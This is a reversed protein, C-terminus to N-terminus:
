RNEVPQLTAGGPSDTTHEELWRLPADYVVEGAEVDSLLDALQEQSPPSCPPDINDCDQDIGDNCIEPELPSITPDLPRCDIGYFSPVYGPLPQTCSDQTPTGSGAGDGDLDQLWPGEVLQNADTDDCDLDNDVFDAPQNCALAPVNQDGFGDGDFDSWWLSSTSLDVSDDEDDIDQDCDNDIGDCVENGGPKVDFDTDDCDTDDEVYGMPPVCGLAIADPNGFTDSDLDQYYVFAFNPDLSPDADDILGDCDNDTPTMVDCIENGLPNTFPNSDDCDFGQGCELIYENTPGACLDETPKGAPFGDNDGDLYWPAPDTICPETDDCDTNDDVYFWPQFCALTTSKPNGAGDLDADEYWLSQLAPNLDPDSDDILKDCDDDIRNCTENANPNILDSDDDCDEANLVFNPGPSACQQIFTGLEFSGDGFSDSDADVHWVNASKIDLQADQDDILNNCNNDVEDCVEIADPSIGANTDDCDSRNGVYGPPPACSTIGNSTDPDGYGDSDADLFFLVERLGEDAQGDCDNDIGDCEEIAGPNIGARFDDCDEGNTAFGRRVECLQKETGPAGYGDNDADTFVLVM